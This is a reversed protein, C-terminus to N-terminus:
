DKGASKLKKQIHHLTAAEKVAHAIFSFTSHGKVVDLIVLV